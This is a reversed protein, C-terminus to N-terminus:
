PIDCKMDWTILWCHLDHKCFVPIVVTCLHGNLLQGYLRFLRLCKHTYWVYELSSVRQKMSKRDIGVSNQIQIFFYLCIYTSAIVNLRYSVYIKRQNRKRIWTSDFELCSGLRNWKVGWSVRWFKLDPLPIKKRFKLSCNHYHLM